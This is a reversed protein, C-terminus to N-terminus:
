IIDPAHSVEWAEIVLAFTDQDPCHLILALNSVLPRSFTLSSPEFYPQREEKRTAPFGEKSIPLAVRATM